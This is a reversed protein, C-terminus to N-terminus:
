SLDLDVSSLTAAPVSDPHEREARPQARDGTRTSGAAPEQDLDLNVASPGALYSM